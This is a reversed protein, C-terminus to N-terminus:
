VGDDLSTSEIVQSVLKDCYTYTLHIIISLFYSSNMHM